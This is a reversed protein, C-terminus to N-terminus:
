AKVLGFRELRYFIQCGLCFNFAFNVFALVIVVWSLGWGIIPNGLAFFLTALLLVSGGMQQAFAHPRPSDAVVRPHALNRPKLVRLYLQRFLALRPEVSGALMVLALIPVLLAAGPWLASLLFAVLLTTIIGAQTVKLATQDVTSTSDTSAM